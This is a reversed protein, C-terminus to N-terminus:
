ASIIGLLPTRSSDLYLNVKLFDGFHTNMKLWPPKSNNFNEGKQQRRFVVYMCHWICHCLMCHWSKITFFRSTNLSYYSQQRSGSHLAPDNVVWNSYVSIFLHAYFILSCIVINVAIPFFALLKMNTCLFHM